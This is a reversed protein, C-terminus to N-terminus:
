TSVLSKGSPMVTGCQSVFSVFCKLEVGGLFSLRTLLLIALSDRKPKRFEKEKQRTFEIIAVALVKPKADQINIAVEVAKKFEGAALYGKIIEDEGVSDSGIM